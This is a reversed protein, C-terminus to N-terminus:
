PLMRLHNCIEPVPTEHSIATSVEWSFKVCVGEFQRATGDDTGSSINASKPASRCARQYRRSYRLNKRVFTPSDVACGVRKRASSLRTWWLTVEWPGTYSDNLLISLYDTFTEIKRKKLYKCNLHNIEPIFRFSTCFLHPFCLHFRVGVKYM